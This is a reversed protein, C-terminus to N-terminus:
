ALDMVETNYLCEGFDMAFTSVNESAWKENSNRVM